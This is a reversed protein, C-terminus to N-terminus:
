LYHSPFSPSFSLSPTLFSPIRNLSKKEMRLIVPNSEETFDSLEKEQGVVVRVGSKGRGVKLQQELHVELKKEREKERRNRKKEKKM